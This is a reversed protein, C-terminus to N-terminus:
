KKKAEAEAALAAARQAIAYQENVHDPDRSNFIADDYSIHGNNFLHAVSDDITHMGEHSGIQILGVVQELKRELICNRVAHNVLLIESAMVRGAADCRPILRQSITATLCNAVQSAIGSQQNAPFADIMRDISGPADITHLTAIVLHGTEAATIATQITELDRMVSVVIVDPDQRMAARLASPFDIADTGIQRQKIMGFSHEFEFEIPDEITVIVVSRQAAITKVMSALTTSKGSGTVGTVLILGSRTNCLKEVASGHGLDRLTPIESPVYRLALEINGRAYHANGRFRGINDIKLAFDLQLEEELKARQTETLASLILEKTDDPELDYDDLPQLVGDVRAAPPAGVCLHVDSAGRERALSLYDIIDKAQSM